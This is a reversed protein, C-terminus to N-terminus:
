FVIAIVYGVPLRGVKERKIRRFGLKEDKTLWLLETLEIIRGNM